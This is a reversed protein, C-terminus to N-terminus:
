LSSSLFCSESFALKRFYSRLQLASYLLFTLFPFSGLKPCNNLRTESDGRAEWSKARGPAITGANLGVVINADVALYVGYHITANSEVLCM